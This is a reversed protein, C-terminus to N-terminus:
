HHQLPRISCNIINKPGEKKEAILKFVLSDDIELYKFILDEVVKVRNSLDMKKPTGNPQYLREKEFEFSLEAILKNHGDLNVKLRNIEQKRTYIYGEFEKIYANYKSSRVRKGNPLTSYAQNVTISMPIGKLEYGKMNEM